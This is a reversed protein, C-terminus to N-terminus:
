KSCVVRPNGILITYRLCSIDHLYVMRTPFGPYICHLLSAVDVSHFIVPVTVLQFTSPVDAYHFTPPVDSRHFLSPVKFIWIYISCQCPLIYVSWLHLSIHFIPMIFYLHFLLLTFYLYFMSLHFLSLTLYLHFMSLHFLLLTLYLYFMLHNVFPINVCHFLLISYQCISCQHLSVYKVDAWHVICPVPLCNHKSRNFMPVTFNLHFVSRIFYPHFVLVTIHLYFM